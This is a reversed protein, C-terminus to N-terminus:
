VLSILVQHSCIIPSGVPLREDEGGGLFSCQVHEGTKYGCDFMVVGCFLLLHQGGM